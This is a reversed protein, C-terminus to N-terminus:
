DQLAPHKAAKLMAWWFVMILIGFVIAPMWFALIGNWAFPGTKFFAVMCGPISLVAVWISLYGTWRPFIPQPNKDGLVVLGALLFMVFGPAAAFVLLIIGLDTMTRVIELSAEPRYAAEIMFLAVMFFTTYGLASLMIFADTFPHMRGEMRKLCAVLGGVFVFLLCLAFTLLVGGMLIYSRYTEVREAIEAPSSLPPPPPFLHLLPWLSIFMLLMSPQSMWACFQIKRNM